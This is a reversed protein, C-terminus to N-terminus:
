RRVAIFKWPLVLPGSFQLRRGNDAAVTFTGMKRHNPQPIDTDIVFDRAIVETAGSRLCFDRFRDFCYVNYYIHGSGVDAGDTAYEKIQITADVLCDTFLSSVFLVGGSPRTVALLSAVADEYSPLWSLTQLSFVLDFGKACLDRDDRLKYLDGNVVKLSNRIGGNEAILQKGLQVLTPNIDIGTWSTNVLLRSLHFINACAGCSSDLAQYQATDDGLVDHVFTTLHATSRYLRSYQQIHYTFDSPELWCRMDRKPRSQKM